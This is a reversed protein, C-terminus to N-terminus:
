GHLFPAPRNDISKAAWPHPESGATRSVDCGRGADRAVVPRRCGRGLIEMPAVPAM